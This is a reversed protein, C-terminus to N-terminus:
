RECLRERDKGGGRCKDRASGGNIFDRGANGFLFDRGGQGFIRDPGGQGLVRDNGAGAKVLDKGAGACILDNGGRALIKDNGGRAVIVDRRGTGKLVDRKGSGIITAPKGFCRPAKTAISLAAPPTPNAVPPPPDAPLLDLASDYLDPEEDTDAAVLSEYSSIFAHRGDASVDEFYASEGKEADDPGTSILTTVGGAREYVDRAADGDVAVLPEATTFFVRSGDPSNGGLSAEFPGDGGDPGTSVLTTAGGAREYLDVAEDGDDATLKEATTFFVRTGDDSISRNGIEYPGNGGVPGTSVLSTVGGFREYLDTEFDTDAPDLSGGSTFLVHTGDRSIWAPGSTTGSNGSAGTSVLSTTGGSREYVDRAGDGDAVVLSEFTSFFVRGGDASVRASDVGHAGNGGAPGFSVRTTTGGFREYLDESGDKDAAVLQEDTYFFLRSGDSSAAAFQADQEESLDGTGTSVLTTVAGSREYIDRSADKDTAVLQEDTQFIVRSGDPAAFDFGASFEGNGGVSGISLLTTVGEFREYVDSKKDTDAAVLAGGATFFARSGDPSVEWLHGSDDGSTDAPGTSVLTTAGGAREYVDTSKDSDAALLSDETEFFVRSGDDSADAYEAEFPGNGGDPGISVLSTTRTEAALAVWAACLGCAGALVTAIVARAPRSRGLSRM